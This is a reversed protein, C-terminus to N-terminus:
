FNGEVFTMLTSRYLEDAEHVQPARVDFASEVTRVRGPHRLRQAAGGSTATGAALPDAQEVEAAAALEIARRYTSKADELRGQWATPPADRKNRCRAIQRSGVRSGRLGSPWARARM